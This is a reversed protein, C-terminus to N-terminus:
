GVVEELPSYFALSTDGYRRDDWRALTGCREPATVRTAHGCILIGNAALVEFSGLKVILSTPFPQSYPPDMVVYDYLGLRTTIEEAKGALVTSRDAFGTARLNSKIVTIQRRDAEVFDAHAAGRSLAEIGLYGTGAFLDAIVV